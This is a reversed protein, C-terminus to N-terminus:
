TKCGSVEGFNSSSKNGAKFPAKRSKMFAHFIGISKKRAPTFEYRENCLYKM